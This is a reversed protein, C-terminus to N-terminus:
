KLKKKSCIPCYVNQHKTVRWGMYRVLEEAVEYGDGHRATSTGCGTCTVETVTTVQDFMRDIEDM